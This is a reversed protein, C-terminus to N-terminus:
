DHRDGANVTVTQPTQTSLSLSPPPLFVSTASSILKKVQKGYESSTRRVVLLVEANVTGTLVAKGRGDERRVLWFRGGM